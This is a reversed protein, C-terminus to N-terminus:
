IKSHVVLFSLQSQQRRCPMKKELGILSERCGLLAADLPYQPKGRPLDAPAHLQDGNRNATSPLLAHLQVKVEGNAEIADYM